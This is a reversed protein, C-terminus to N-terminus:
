FWPPAFVLIQFNKILYKLETGNLILTGFYVNDIDKARHNTDPM